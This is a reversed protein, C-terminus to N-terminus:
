KARALLPARGPFHLHHKTPLYSLQAGRYTQRIMMTPDSPKFLKDADDWDEIKSVWLDGTERELTMLFKVGHFDRLIGILTTDMMWSLSGAKNADTLTAYGGRFIQDSRRMVVCVGEGSKKFKGIHMPARRGDKMKATEEIRAKLNKLIKPGFDAM